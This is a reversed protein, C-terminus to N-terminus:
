GSSGASSPKMDSANPHKLPFDATQAIQLISLAATRLQPEHRSLM